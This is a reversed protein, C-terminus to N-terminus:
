ANALHTLIVLINHGRLPTVVKNSYFPISHQFLSIHRIEFYSTSNSTGHLVIIKGCNRYTFNQVPHNKGLCICSKSLSSKPQLTWFVYIILVCVVFLLISFAPQFNNNKVLPHLISSYRFTFIILFQCANDIEKM